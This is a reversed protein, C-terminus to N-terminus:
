LDNLSNTLRFAHDRRGVKREIEVQYKEVLYSNWLHRHYHRVFRVHHSHEDNSSFSHFKRLNKEKRTFM